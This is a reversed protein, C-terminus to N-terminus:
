KANRWAHEFIACNMKYIEPDHIIVGIKVDPAFNIYSIKNDYIQMVSKFPYEDEKIFRIDTTEKHYQKLYDRSFPSDLILARKKINLKDRKKAYDTNIKGLYTVIAEMDAYTRIIETATLSDALVKKIGETGEFIQMGPKGSSRNFTSIITNLNAEFNNKTTKIEDERTKIISLLKEPHDPNLHAIKTKNRINPNKPRLMRKTVLKKKNLSEIGVYIMGKKINTGKIIDVVSSEGNLILFEYIEAELENLGIQTFLTKYM